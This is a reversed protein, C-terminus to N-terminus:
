RNQQGRQWPKPTGKREGRVLSLDEGDGRTQTYARDLRKELNQANKDNFLARTPIESAMEILLKETKRQTKKTGKRLRQPIRNVRAIEFQKKKERNKTDTKRVQREFL